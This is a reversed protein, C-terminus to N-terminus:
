GGQPRLWFMGGVHRATALPPLDWIPQLRRHLHKTRTCYHVPLEIRIASGFLLCCSLQYQENYMRDQFAEPYDDPIFIDHIGVLVGPPIVPLVELFFVTVDSNQFSRHSGDFVVVDGDGLTSFLSLDMEELPRRIVEDCIADIESRPFPDVSTINTPLGCDRIARRAFKTSMGSGIEVYRPANRRVLFGYISIADFPPMWDNVWHPQDPTDPEAPIRAFRGRLSLFEDLHRAYREEHAALIEALKAHPPQDWGYRSRPKVPYDLAILRSEERLREWAEARQRLADRERVLTDEKVSAPHGPERAVLKAFLQDREAQLAERERTRAMYEGFWADRERLAQDRADFPRRILPLRRHLRFPIM